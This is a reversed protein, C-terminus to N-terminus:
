GPGRVRSDSTLGRYVLWDGPQAVPTVDRLCDPARVPALLARIEPPADRMVVWGRTLRARTAACSEDGPILEIPHRLRDGALPGIVQTVFAVPARDDSYGPQAAFWAQLPAAATGNTEAVRGLWGGASYASLGITALLAAAGAAKLRPGGVGAALAAASGALAGLMLVHAGPVDPFGVSVTRGLNWVLAIALLAIAARSWRGWLALAVAGAMVVPVLYRVATLSVDLLPDTARGTYPASMWALVGVVAAAGVGAVLRSRRAAALAAIGGAILVVGGAVSEVYIRARGDALSARPQEMFSTEIRELYIPIPDGGLMDGFPWLPSGHAILNRFYWLGGVATAAVLGGALAVRAPRLAGRCTWLSAGLAIVVMPATTTKAGVALGAAALAPGLLRPRAARGGWPVACACLACCAALWAVAPLDNKPKGLHEALVPEALVAAVALLTVGTACGLRRLGVGLSLALLALSAIMWLTAPVFSQSLGMSWALLTEHTLPFSGTQFEVNVLPTAGTNGQQIWGVAEPLHYTTADIGLLPHQLHWVALAALTGAAAGVGIRENRSLEAWWAPGAVAGVLLRAGVYTAVAAALLAVSSGGAGVRGLLLAEVVAACTGATAAVLVRELPDTTFRGGLRWGAAALAAVAAALLAHQGLIM